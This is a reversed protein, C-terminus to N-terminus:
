KFMDLIQNPDVGKQAALQYFLDQASGGSQRVLNLVTKMEPSNQIYGMPDAMMKVKQFTQQLQSM